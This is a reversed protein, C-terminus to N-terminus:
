FESVNILRSGVKTHPKLKITALLQCFTKIMQNFTLTMNTIAGYCEKAYLVLIMAKIQWYKVLKGRGILMFM